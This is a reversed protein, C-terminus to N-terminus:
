CVCKESIIVWLSEKSVPLKGLRLSAAESDCLKAFAWPVMCFETNILLATSTSALDVYGEGVACDLCWAKWRRATEIFVGVPTYGLLGLVARHESAGLAQPLSNCIPM